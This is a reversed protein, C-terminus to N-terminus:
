RFTIHGTFTGTWYEQDPVGPRSQVAIDESCSVLYTVVAHSKRLEYYASRFSKECEAESPASSTFVCQAGPGCVTAGYATLDAAMALTPTAFVFLFTSTLIKM